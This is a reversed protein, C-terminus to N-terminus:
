AAWGRASREGVGGDGEDFWGVAAVAGEEALAVPGLVVAVPGFGGEECNMWAWAAPRRPWGTVCCAVGIVPEAEEIPREEARYTVADLRAEFAAIILLHESVPPGLASRVIGDEDDGPVGGVVGIVVVEDVQALVGVVEVADGFGFEM